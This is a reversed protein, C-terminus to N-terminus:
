SRNDLYSIERHNTLRLNPQYPPLFFDPFPLLFLLFPSLSPNNSANATHYNPMWTQVAAAKAEGTGSPIAVLWSELLLYIKLLYTFCTTNQLYVM